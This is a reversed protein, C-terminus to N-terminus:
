AFRLSRMRRACKAARTFPMLCAKLRCPELFCPKLKISSSAASAMADTMRAATPASTRLTASLKSRPVRATLSPSRRMRAISRSAASKPEARKTMVGPPPLGTAANMPSAALTMKTPGPPTLELWFPSSTTPSVTSCSSSTARRTLRLAAQSPGRVRSSSIGTPSGTIRTSPLSRMENAKPQTLSPPAKANLSPHFPAGTRGRTTRNPRRSRAVPASTIAAVSKTIRASVDPPQPCCFGTPQTEPAAAGFAPWHHCARICLSPDDQHGNQPHDRQKRRESHGRRDGDSSEGTDDGEVAVAHLYLRQEGTPEFSSDTAYSAQALCRNILDLRPGHQGRARNASLQAIFATADIDSFCGDLHQRSQETRNASRCLFGIRDGLGHSFQALGGVAIARVHGRPRLVPAAPLRLTLENEGVHALERAHRAHRRFPDGRDRRERGYIPALGHVRQGRRGLDKCGQRADIHVAGRSEQLAAALKWRVWCSEGRHQPCCFFVEVHRGM